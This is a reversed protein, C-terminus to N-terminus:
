LVSKTELTQSLGHSSDIPSSPNSDFGHIPIKPSSM